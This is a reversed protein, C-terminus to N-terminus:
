GIMVITTPEINEQLQVLEERRALLICKEARLRNEVDDIEFLRMDISDIVIGAGKPTM